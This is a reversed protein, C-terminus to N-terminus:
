EQAHLQDQLEEIEAKLKRRQQEGQMNQEALQQQTQLSIALKEETADLDANAAKLKKELLATKKQTDAKLKNEREELTQQHTAREQEIRKRLLELNDELEGRLRKSHDRDESLEAQLKESESAQLRLRELEEQQPKFEKEMDTAKKRWQNREEVALQMDVSSSRMLDEIQQRAQEKEGVQKQLKLLETAAQSLYETALDLDRNEEELSELQQQLTASMKEIMELTPSGPQIMGRVEYLKNELNESHEVMNSLRAKLKDKKAALTNIKEEQEPNEDPETNRLNNADESLQSIKEGNEEQAVELEWLEKQTNLMLSEIDRIRENRIKVMEVADNLLNSKNELDRRYPEVSTCIASAIEDADYQQSKHFPTIKEDKRPLPSEVPLLILKQCSPCNVQGGIVQKNIALPAKCVPCCFEILM